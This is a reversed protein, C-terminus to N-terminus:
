PVWSHDGRLTGDAVSAARQPLTWSPRSMIVVPQARAGWLHSGAGQTGTAVAYVASRREDIRQLRQERGQRRAAERVPDRRDHVVDPCGGARLCAKQRVAWREKSGQRLLWAREM